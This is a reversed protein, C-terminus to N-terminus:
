IFTPEPMWSNLRNLCEQKVKRNNPANYGQIYLECFVEKNLRKRENKGVASFWKFRSGMADTTIDVHNKTRKYDKKSFHIHQFDGGIAKDVDLHKPDPNEKNYDDLGYKSRSEIGEYYRRMKKKDPIEKPRFCHVGKSKPSAVCSIQKNNYQRSDYLNATFDAISPTTSSPLGKRWDYPHTHFDGVKTDTEVPCSEIYTASTTGEKIGKSNFSRGSPSCFPFGVERGSSSTRALSETINDQTSKSLPSFGSEVVTKGKVKDVRNILPRKSPRSKKKAM